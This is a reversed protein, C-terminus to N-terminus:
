RQVRRLEDLTLPGAEFPGWHPQAAQAPRSFIEIMRATISTLSIGSDTINEKGFLANNEKGDLARIDLRAWLPESGSVGSIDMSMQQLCWAEAGVATLGKATTRTELKSVSFNEKFLDYSVVFRAANDQLIHNPTGSWITARILYPVQDSNHMRELPKGTLFHVGAPASFEVRNERASLILEETWMAFVLGSLFAAILWWGKITRRPM